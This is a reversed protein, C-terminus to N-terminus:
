LFFLKIEKVQSVSRLFYQQQEIVMNNDSEKHGWPSAERDRMMEWLKGVNIDMSDPLTALM